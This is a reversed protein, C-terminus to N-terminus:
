VNRTAVNVAQAVKAADLARWRAAVHQDPRALYTAGPKGDYREAILGGTDRITKLGEPAEGENAVVITEVPITEAALATLQQTTATDLTSANETFYLATFRDGVINLLWQESEGGEIPADDMVAGPVMDGRFDDADPTNLTSQTLFAADSLLGSNVLAQAFPQSRALELTANRFALSTPSKPTIFDTSRTSNMINEDAAYIREDSYSDLLTDPAKGDMVLKLKWILNDTDQVGSNAGRAGFPSVQHAADGVFLARGHRFKEMRRCRFTYVSCWELEIDADDGLMAKARPLVNEPKKEEEPDADWGLQFDLRWVNDSQRHLLTSQGRHYSPDFSFWREPPFDAKMVVDAILFRDQFWQGSSELGLHERIPSNAGDAVILWDCTLHYSGGPTDITRTVKDSGNDVASVRNEWRVEIEDVQNMRKVMYEELYYQQLNIFAPIKHGEEPLLDFTRVLEDCFFIKGVQWTVGKDIMPQACHLRDMIELARKSYCVARSGVSVTNDNDLVLTPIGQQGADIAAAMGVPGAGVVIVPHHAPTAADQDPSKVYNYVPNTYTLFM